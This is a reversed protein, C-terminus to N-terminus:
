RKTIYILSNRSYKIKKPETGKSYLVFLYYFFIFSLMHMVAAFYSITFGCILTHIAILKLFYPYEVKLLAKIYMYLMTIVPILGFQNWYGIFGLDSNHVGLEMMDQMLSTTHASLFGNGFLVCVWNPSAEFLFYNYAKNRNYESDMLQTMTEEILSTWTGITMYIGYGIVLALFFLLLPKYKSRIKLLTFVMLIAMPFLMSRRAMLYMFCLLFFAFLLSKLNFHEKLEQLAYYFPIAILSYGEVAWVSSEEVTEPLIFLYPSLNKVVFVVFMLISLINLAKIVEEKAPAIIFLIPIAFLYYQFRYTIISQLFSQEYYLYAPIMSFFIGAMVWLFYRNPHCFMLKSKACIAGVVLYVWILIFRMDDPINLLRFDFFNFWLLSLIVLYIVKKM